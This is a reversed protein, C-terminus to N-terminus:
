EIIALSKMINDWGPTRDLGQDPLPGLCYKVPFTSSRPCGSHRVSPCSAVSFRPVESWRSRTACPNRLNGSLRLGQRAKARSLNRNM